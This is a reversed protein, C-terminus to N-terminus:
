QFLKMMQKIETRYKPAIKIKTGSSLLIYFFSVHSIYRSNVITNKNALYLSPFPEFDMWLTRIRYTTEKQTGDTLYIITKRDTGLCYLFDTEKIYFTDKENRFEITPVKEQKYKLLLQNILISLEDTKVPHSLVFFDGSIKENAESQYLIISSSATTARLHSIVSTLDETQSLSLFYATYIIPSLLLSAKSGFSDIYISESASLCRDAERKLLREMQKRDAVGDNCIAIHM